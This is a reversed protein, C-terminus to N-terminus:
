QFIRPPLELVIVATANRSPFSRLEPFVPARAIGILYGPEHDPWPSRQPGDAVVPQSPFAIARFVAEPAGSRGHYPPVAGRGHKALLDAGVQLSQGARLSDCWRFGESCVVRCDLNGRGLNTVRFVPGKAGEQREVAVIGEVSTEYDCRLYSMANPYLQVPALEVRAPGRPELTADPVRLPEAPGYRGEVGGRLPGLLLKRSGALEDRVEASVDATMPRPAILGLFSTAEARSGDAHVRLVTVEEVEPRPVQSFLGLRWVALIALLAAGCLVAFAWERRGRRGLVQWPLVLGATAYILLGLFVLGRPPVRLKSLETLEHAVVRELERLGSAADGAFSAARALAPVLAAHLEPDGQPSLPGPSAPDPGRRFVTVSGAGHARTVALAGADGQTGGTAEGSGGAGLLAALGAPPAAGGWAPGPVAVLTGGEEVWRALAEIAGEPFLAPDPGLLLVLQVASFALSSSPLEEPRVLAAKAQRHERGDAAAAPLRTRIEELLAGLDWAREAVVLVRLTGPDDVKVPVAFGQEFGPGRLTVRLEVWGDPVVPIAVERLTASGGPVELPMRYTAPDAGTGPGRAGRAELTGRFDEGLNRLRLRLLSWRGDRAAGALGLEASVVEVQVGSSPRRAGDCAALALAAAALAALTLWPCSRAGIM